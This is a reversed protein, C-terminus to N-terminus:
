VIPVPDKGPYLLWPTTNVMCEWITSKHGARPHVVKKGKKNVASIGVRKWFGGLQLEREAQVHGL